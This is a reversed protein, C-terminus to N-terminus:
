AVVSVDASNWDMDDDDSEDDGEASYRRSVLHLCPIMDNLVLLYSKVDALGLQGALM